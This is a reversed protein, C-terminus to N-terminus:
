RLRALPARRLAGFPSGITHTLRGLWHPFGNESARPVAFGARLGANRAADTSRKRRAKSLSSPESANVFSCTCLSNRPLFRAQQHGSSWGQWASTSSSIALEFARPVDPRAHSRLRTVQWAQPSTGSKRACRHSERGFRTQLTDEVFEIFPTRETPVSRAARGAMAFKISRPLRSSRPLRLTTTSDGLPEV